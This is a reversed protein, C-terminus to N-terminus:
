EAVAIMLPVGVGITAFIIHLGLTLATLIRSLLAANQVAMFLDTGRSYSIDNSLIKM